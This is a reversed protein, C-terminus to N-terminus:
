PARTVASDRGHERPAAATILSEMLPSPFVGLERQLLDRCLRYQRLAEHYNGEALHARVLARHASERFPEGRVAALGADIAEPIRGCLVLRDALAELAHLCLQRIREREVIVWDEYWDPLLEGTFQGAAGAAPEKSAVGNRLPGDARGRDILLSAASAIRHVDVSVWGALALAAGRREVGCFGARRLRWLASRLNGAAREEPVDPWLQGAIYGRSAGRSRLALLALPRQAASPVAVPGGSELAFGGMLTLRAHPSEPPGPPRGGTSERVQVTTMLLAGSAVRWAAALRGLKGCTTGRQEVPGANTFSILVGSLGGDARPRPSPRFKDVGVSFALQEAPRGALVVLLAEVPGAVDDVPAHDRPHLRAELGRRAAAGAAALDLERV